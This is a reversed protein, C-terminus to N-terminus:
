AGAREGGFVAPRIAYFPFRDSEQLRAGLDRDVTIETALEAPVDRDVQLVRWVARGGPVLKRRLLQLVQAFRAAALWDPVNSLHAHTYRGDEVSSLHEVLDQQVLGLTDSRARLSDFHEARLYEPVADSSLVRGLVTLQLMPNKAALSGTCLARFRQFYQEGLPVESQRHALGRADLGRGAYIRPHFALRFIGRLLPRDFTAEFYSRQEALSTCAFLGDFRRRGFLALAIHALKRVYREYRGQWIAGAEVAERHSEWFARARPDLLALVAELAQRRFRPSAPLFGLFAVADERALGRTAALKLRTLHLQGADVDVAVVSGVGLALLSLPMDGASAISLVRAGGDAHLGLAAMETLPDEQSIGFGYLASM